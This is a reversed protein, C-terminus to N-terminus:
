PAAVPMFAEAVRVGALAAKFNDIDRQVAAQGKYSVPGTCVWRGPAEPPSPSKGSATQPLWITRELRDYVEYFDAFRRRDPSSYASTTRAAPQFARYELGALRESVYQSWGRKGYEGDSIVDIGVEAQQRVVEAVASRLADALAQEDVPRNSEVERMFAIISSPRVLSGAHTALIRDTSRQM